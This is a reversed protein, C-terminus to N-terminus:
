SEVMAPAGEAQVAIIEVDPRAAKVALAVGSILAGNGLPVLLMEPPEALTLLELGMTGAGESVEPNLGDELM